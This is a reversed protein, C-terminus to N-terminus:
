AEGRARAGGRARSGEELLRARRALECVDAAVHELDHAVLVASTSWRQSIPGGGSAAVELVVQELMGPMRAAALCGGTNTTGASHVIWDVAGALGDIALEGMVRITETISTSDSDPHPVALSRRAVDVARESIQALLAGCILGSQLLRRDSAQTAWTIPINVIHEELEARRERITDHRDVVHHAAEPGPGVWATLARELSEVVPDALDALERRVSAIAEALEPPDSSELASTM